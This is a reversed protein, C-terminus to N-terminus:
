ASLELNSKHLSLSSKYKNVSSYKRGDQKMKTKSRHYLYHIIDQLGKIRNICVICHIYSEAECQKSLNTIVKNNDSLIDLLRCSFDVHSICVPGVRSILTVFAFLIIKKILDPVNICVFANETM